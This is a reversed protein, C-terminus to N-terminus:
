TLRRCFPEYGMLPKNLKRIKLGM